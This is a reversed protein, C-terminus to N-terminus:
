DHDAADRARLAALAEDLDTPLPEAVAVREGTVPHEFALWGAHLAPRDLDLREALPRSAGYTRDGVVPHGVASLHVRVQHTRGTELTARIRACDGFSEEVDYHTVAARGADDVVFRERRRRSRAIPADITARPPDPVGEVLASYAREVDHHALAASLGELAQPTKAVALLGSTGRDLRHVIGPRDPEDAEALPMGLARLADVLTAEGRTGAGPHVVMGAPKAVVALHDDQWRVGVAEPEPQAEPEAAPRVHVREGARLRHSKGVPRGDVTVDGADLRRQVASRSEDLREALVQDARRGEEEAAVVWDLLTAM